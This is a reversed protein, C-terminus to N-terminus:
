PERLGQAALVRRGRETLVYTDPSGAPTVGGVSEVDWVIGQTWEPDSPPIRRNLEALTLPGDRLELVVSRARHSAAHLSVAEAAATANSAPEDARALGVPMCATGLVVMAGIVRWRM